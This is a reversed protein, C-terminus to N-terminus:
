AALDTVHQEIEKLISDAEELDIIETIKPMPNGKVPKGGGLLGGAGGRACAGRLRSDEAHSDGQSLSFRPM